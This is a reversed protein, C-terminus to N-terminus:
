ARMEAERSMMGWRFCSHDFQVLVEQEQWVRQLPEIGVVGPPITSCIMSIFLALYGPNACDAWSPCGLYYLTAALLRPVVHCRMGACRWLPVLTLRSHKNMMVRALVTYATSRQAVARFPTVYQSMEMRLKVKDKYLIDTITRLTDIQVGEMVLITKSGRHSPPRSSSNSVPTTNPRSLASGFTGDAGHFDPIGRVHSAKGAQSVDRLPNDNAQSPMEGFVKPDLPPHTSDFIHSNSPEIGSLPAQPSTTAEITDFNWSGPVSDPAQVLSLTDGASPNVAAGKSPHENGSEETWSMDIFLNPDLPPQSADFAHDHDGEVGPMFVPASVDEGADFAWSSISVQAADSNYVLEAGRESDSHTKSGNRVAAESDTVHVHQWALSGSSPSDQEEHDMDM